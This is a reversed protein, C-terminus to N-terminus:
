APASSSTPPAASCRTTRMRPARAGAGPRRIAAFTSLGIIEHYGLFAVGGRAATLSMAVMALMIVSTVISRYVLLLMVIIVTFTVMEIMRLSRDGALQQDATMASAGTVFVQVGPPAQLSEVINQVAEVSENALTEGMNGALKVQVYAAKGDGSQAGTATLPDGWFDQLSQVHKDDAELKAIMQDYYAHAAEGLPEQGELVIMASSDSDGEEFVDGMHKMSIMAPADNPSMSVAQMQGVTELQPVAVNVVAIVAVWALILPLAFARIMRPIFPRAVQKAPPSADTPAHNKPATM